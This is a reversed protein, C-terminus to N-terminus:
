RHSIIHEFTLIRTVFVRNGQGTLESVQDGALRTGVMQLSDASMNLVTQPNPYLIALVAGATDDAKKGANGNDDWTHIQVQMSTTTKHDSFTGADVNSVQNLTIYAESTEEEPAQLYYVPVNVADVTINGDLATIYAKRLPYNVDKM